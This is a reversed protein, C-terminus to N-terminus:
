LDGTLNGFSVNPFRGEGDGQIRDMVDVVSQVPVKQSPYLELRQIQPYDTKLKKINQQLAGWDRSGQSAPIQVSLKNVGELKLEFSQDPKIYLRLRNGTAASSGSGAAVPTDIAAMQVFVVSLLLMPIISVIIDLMPALNIHFTSGDDKGLDAAM